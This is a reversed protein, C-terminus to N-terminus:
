PRPLIAESLGHEQVRVDVELVLRLNAMLYTHYCHSPRGPKRPNYGVVAGEQQGRLPKITSDIDLVWPESLLPSACYDLRTQLWARGSAEDIKALGRRVADESAVKKMGLLQPNVADCWLTTIHPYRYHGSLVSLLMTGLLDRKSPANPSSFTLPCDAV